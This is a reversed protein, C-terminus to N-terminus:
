KEYPAPALGDLNGGAAANKALLTGTLRTIEELDIEAAENLLRERADPTLRDFFAFVQPQGARRFKELLPHSMSKKSWRPAAPNPPNTTTAFSTNAPNPTAM